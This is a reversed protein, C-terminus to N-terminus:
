PLHFLGSWTLDWLNDNVHSNLFLLLLLLASYLSVSLLFAARLTQTTQTTQPVYPQYFPAFKETILHVLHARLYLM